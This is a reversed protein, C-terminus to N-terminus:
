SCRNTFLYQLSSHLHYLFCSIHRWYNSSSRSCESQHHSWSWNFHKRQSHRHQLSQLRDRHDLDYCSQSCLTKHHHPTGSPLIKESCDLAFHSFGNCYYCHADPCHHDTHGTKGCVFCGDYNSMMNVNPPSLTATVQQATNLKEVATIVEWLTHPDKECVKATINHADWLGNIFIHVAATDSNFDCRKAKMNFYHAYAALTENDRQQIGM